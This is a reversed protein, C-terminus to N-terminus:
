YDYAEKEIDDKLSDFVMSHYEVDFWELFMKYNIKEPWTEDDAMWSSLELEFIDQFM